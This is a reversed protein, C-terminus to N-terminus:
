RFAAPDLNARRFAEAHRDALQALTLETGDRMVFRDLTLGGRRFLAGRTPGLIDDQNAASQRRLWQGYTTKAPTTGTLERMRQRAFADFARKHGTPLDGRMRPAKFGNEDAYERLLQRQTFDRRPRDGIVEGDLLPSWLSRENFHLPFVPAKPDDVDFAQGDFRRCIPTTRSDLTATFLKKPALDANEALYAERAESSVGSTITRALNAAQRRTIQTVGDRGQLRASGVLRRSIEPLTENQTLGIKVAGEIRRVDDSELAKAWERLTRGQFPRSRVIDRLRAPDPMVTALEVGSVATAFIRNMFRPEAIALANMEDLWAARVDGWARIRTERLKDLVAQLQRIRAPTDFGARTLSRVQLKLDSETADLLTWIRNRVHGSFQLLGIQHRVMLDFLEENFTEAM